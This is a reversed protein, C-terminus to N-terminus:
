VAVYDISVISKRSRVKVMNSHVEIGNIHRQGKKRQLVKCISYLDPDFM